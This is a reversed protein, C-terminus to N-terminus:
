HQPPRGPPNPNFTDTPLPLGVAPSIGAILQRAAPSMGECAAAAASADGRQTVVAILSGEAQGAIVLARARGQGRLDLVQAPQGLFSVAGDVDGCGRAPGSILQYAGLGLNAQNRLRRAVEGAPDSIQGRELWAFVRVEEDNDGLRFRYSRVTGGLDPEVTWGRPYTATFHETQLRYTGSSACGGVCVLALLISRTKYSTIM